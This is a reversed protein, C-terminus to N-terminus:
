EVAALTLVAHEDKGLRPLPLKEDMWQMLPHSPKYQDAWPFSM